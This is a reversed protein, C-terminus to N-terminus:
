TFKAIPSELAPRLEEWARMAGTKVDDWAGGSAHELEALKEKV